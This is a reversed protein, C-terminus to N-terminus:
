PNGGEDILEPVVKLVRDAGHAALADAQGV